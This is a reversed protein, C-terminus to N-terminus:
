WIVEFGAACYLWVEGKTQDFASNLLVTVDSWLCTAGVRACRSRRLLMGGVATPLWALVDADAKQTVGFLVRCARWGEAAAYSSRQLEERQQPLSQSTEGGLDAETPSRM